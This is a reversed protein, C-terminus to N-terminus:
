PSTLPQTRAPAVREALAEIAALVLEPRAYQPL